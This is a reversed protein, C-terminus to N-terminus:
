VMREVSFVGLWLIRVIFFGMFYLSFFMLCVCIFVWIFIDKVWLRCVMSWWFGFIMMIFFIWLVFVVCIVIWVESVLWRISEVSWVLLVDFVIVWSWLMFKLDNRSEDERVFIIVCCRIWWRYGCYWCNVGMDGWCVCINLYWWSVIVVILVGM